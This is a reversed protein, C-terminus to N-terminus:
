PGAAPQFHRHVIASQDVIRHEAADMTLHSFQGMGWALPTARGTGAGFLGGPPDVSRRM